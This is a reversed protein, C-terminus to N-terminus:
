YTTLIVTLLLHIIDYRLPFNNELHFRPVLAFTSHPRLPLNLKSVGCEQKTGSRYEACSKKSTQRVSMKRVKGNCIRTLNGLLGDRSRLDSRWPVRSSAYVMELISSDFENITESLGGGDLVSAHSHLLRSRSWKFEGIETGSYGV